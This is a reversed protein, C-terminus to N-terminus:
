LGYRTSLFANFGYVFIELNYSPYKSDIIEKFEHVINEDKLAQLLNEGHATLSNIYTESPNYLSSKSFELDACNSSDMQKLHFTVEQENYADLSLQKQTVTDSKSKNLEEYSLLIDRICDINLIM